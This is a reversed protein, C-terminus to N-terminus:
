LTDTSATPKPVTAPTLGCAELQADLTTVAQTHVWPQMLARATHFEATLRPYLHAQPAADGLVRAAETIDQSLILAHGLRVQCRTYGGIYTPDYQALATSAADLAEQPKGLRALLLSRASDISGHHVWYAPSDPASGTATTLFDHARDYATMSPGYQGDLAYASAAMQEVLAKLHLDNTRAALSRAAAASDLVAPIDGRVFAAFSANSAAYAALGPNGADHAAKRAHVCYNRSEEPHGMNLLYGGISSAMNSDVVSLARRLQEPCGGKLLHLLRHQATVMEFVQCPGLKDELRQCHGLMAALNRVVQADVRSPTQVAQALRAYEDLNLDVLGAAALVSGALYIADRRGLARVIRTVVAMLEEALKGCGGRLTVVTIRPWADDGTRLLVVPSILERWTPLVPKATGTQQRQAHRRRARYDREAQALVSHEAVLVGQAHCLDDAIRWLAAPLGRTGNEVRSIMSRTKGLARGLHTQSVGAAIRCTALQAGLNRRLTEVKALDAALDGDDARVEPVDGTV